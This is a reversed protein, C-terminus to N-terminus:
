IEVAQLKAEFAGDLEQEFDFLGVFDEKRDDATKQLLDDAILHFVIEGFDDTATVGWRKFVDRALFGFVELALARAGEMIEPGSVHRRQGGRTSLTHELAEFVFAYADPAYRGHKRAIGLIREDKDIM